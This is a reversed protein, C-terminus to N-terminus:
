NNSLLMSGQVSTLSVLAGSNSSNIPPTSPQRLVYEHQIEEALQLIQARLYDPNNKVKVEIINEDQQSIINASISLLSFESKKTVFSYANCCKKKMGAKKTVFM